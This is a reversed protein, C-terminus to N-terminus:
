LFQAWYRAFKDKGTNNLHIENLWDGSSGNSNVSALDLSVQKLTDVLQLNTSINMFGRLLGALENMLADSLEKWFVTPIDKQRFAKYLWPGAVSAPANRPMPYGYTHYFIPIARNEQKGATDRLGVLYNFQYELHAKLADMAAQDIFDRYGVPNACRQLIGKRELAAAIIDNGGASLLIGDWERDARLTRLLESSGRTVMKALTDGPHSCNVILTHQKLPVSEGFRYLFNPSLIDSFSFWSDGEALYHRDYDQWSFLVGAKIIRGDQDIDDPSIVTVRNKNDPMYDSSQCFTRPRPLVRANNPFEALFLGVNQM